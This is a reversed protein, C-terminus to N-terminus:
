AARRRAGGLPLPPCLPRLMCLATSRRASNACNADSCKTPSGSSRSRRRRTRLKSLCRPGPLVVEQLRRNWLRGLQAAGVRPTRPALAHFRTASCTCAVLAVASCGKQMAFHFSNPRRHTSLRPRPSPSLPSRPRHTGLEGGRGPAAQMVQNSSKGDVPLEGDTLTVPPVGTSSASGNDEADEEPEGNQDDPPLSPADRMRKQLSLAAIVALSNPSRHLRLDLGESRGSCALCM